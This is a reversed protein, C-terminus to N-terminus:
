GWDHVLMGLTEGLARDKEIIVILPRYVKTQSDAATQKNAAPM